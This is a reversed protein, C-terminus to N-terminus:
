VATTECRDPFRLVGEDRVECYRGVRPHDLRGAQRVSRIALYLWNSRM